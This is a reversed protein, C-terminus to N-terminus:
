RSIAVAGHSLNGTLWLVALILLVLGFLVSYRPRETTM